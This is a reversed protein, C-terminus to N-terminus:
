RSIWLTIKMIIFHVWIISCMSVLALISYNGFKRRILGYFSIITPIIISAIIFYGNYLPYKQGFELEVESFWSPLFFMSLIITLYLTLKKDFLMNNNLFKGILNREIRKRGYTENFFATAVM